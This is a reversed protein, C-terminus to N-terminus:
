RDLQDSGMPHGSNDDRDIPRGRLQERRQQQQQQQQGLRGSGRAAAASHGGWGGPERQWVPQQPAGWQSPERQPRQLENRDLNLAPESRNVPPESRNLQPLGWGGPERAAGRNPQGWLIGQRQQPEPQDPTHRRM